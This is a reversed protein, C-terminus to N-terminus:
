RSFPALHRSASPSSPREWVLRPRPICETTLWPRTSAIMWELGRWRRGRISSLAPPRSFRWRRPPPRLPFQPGRPVVEVPREVELALGPGPQPGQLALRLGGLEAQPDFLLLELQAAAQDGLLQAGALAARLLGFPGGLLRAG